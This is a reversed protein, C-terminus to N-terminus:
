RWTWNQGAAFARDAADALEAVLEGWDAPMLRAREARRLVAAVRGATMPPVNFVDGAKPSFLPQIIRWDGAPLVHALHQALNHMTTYSRRLDGSTGHSVNRGM